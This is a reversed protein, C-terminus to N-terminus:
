SPKKVLVSQNYLCCRISNSVSGVFFFISNRNSRRNVFEPFHGLLLFFTENWFYVLITEKSNTSRYCHNTFVIDQLFLYFPNFLSNSDNLIWSKTLILHNSTKNTLLLCVIITCLSDSIRLSNNKLSILNKKIIACTQTLFGSRM